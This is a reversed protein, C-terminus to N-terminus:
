HTDPSRKRFLRFLFLVSTSLFVSSFGTLSDMRDFRAGVAWGVTWGSIWVPLLLFRHHSKRVISSILGVQVCNVLIGCSFYLAWELSPRVGWFFGGATAGLIEGLWGGALSIPLCVVISAVVLPVGTMGLAARQQRTLEAQKREEEARRQRASIYAPNPFVPLWAVDGDSAEPSEVKPRVFSDTEGYTKRLYDVLMWHLTELPIREGLEERGKELCYLLGDSFSTLERKGLANAEKDSEAASLIATGRTPSEKPFVELVNRMAIRAPGDAQSWARSAAAGYCCDLILYRRALRARSRIVTALSRIDLATYSLEETETERIALHLDSVGRGELFGHGVYYFFLDQLPTNRLEELKRDLFNRIKGLLQDPSGADDFLDLIQRRPIGLKELLYKRFAFASNSFRIGHLELEVAKPFERAGLVIAVARQPDFSSFPM